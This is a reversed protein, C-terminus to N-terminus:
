KAQLENVANKKTLDNVVCLLFENRMMAFVFGKWGNSYHKRIHLLFSSFWELRSCTRALPWGIVPTSPGRFIPFRAGLMHLKSIESWKVLRSSMGSCISMKMRRGLRQEGWFNQSTAEHNENDTGKRREKSVQFMMFGPNFSAHCEKPVIHCCTEFHKVQLALVQKAVPLCVFPANM